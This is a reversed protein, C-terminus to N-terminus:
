IFMYVVSLHIYVSKFSTWFEMKQVCMEIYINFILLFETAFRESHGHSLELRWTNTCSPMYSVDYQSWCCQGICTMLQPLSKAAWSQMTPMKPVLCSFIMTMPSIRSSSTFSLQVPGIFHHFDHQPPCTQSYCLSFSCAIYKVQQRLYM